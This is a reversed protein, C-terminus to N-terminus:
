QGSIADDGDDATLPEPSNTNRRTNCQPSKPGLVADVVADDVNAYYDMTTKINAHRMLRQLVQASVKGAYRCGFGRRLSKFTLRVGAKGAIKRVCGSVTLSHMEGGTRGSIFRFVRPDGKRRPLNALAEKLVPDLPVWQDEVGKVFGAPLIIRDRDLSVYPVLDTEELELLRAEELRLGAYWGCMLYVQWQQTPAKELIREFLEVPVAQPKKRPVKVSPFHPVAQMLKQEV